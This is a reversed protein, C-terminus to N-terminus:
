PRSAGAARAAARIHEAKWRMAMEVRARGSPHDYFLIEEIPGPDIKRYDSLRMAVRAFGDPQAAANLGFIDAQSETSRSLSNTVPTMLLFYASVIAGLLPLAAPDAQDRVGWRQGYRALLRVYVWRTAALGGVLILGISVFLQWTHYLVYHGMEHGMVAEIEEPATRRLLNDNLSIRTTGLLGSVNASIRTTQRSADFWYVNDAPVGNARALSLISARVPGEELPKYDNFIPAIWVPAVLAVLALMLVGAIAGGLWWTRPWRRIVAYLVTVAGSGLVLGIALAKLQDALWADFTQTALGYAHERVFGIYVTLPFALVATVLVYQAAYLAACLNPRTTVREALRRLRASLRTGLLLWAVGLGYLFDVLLLVYGGEFYADSRARQAPSLLGLYAQTAREVDFDPGAEAGPPISLTVPAPPTTPPATAPAAAAAAAPPPAPAAAAAAAPPGATDPAAPPTAARAPLVALLTSFSVLLLIQGCRMLSEPRVRVHTRSCHIM